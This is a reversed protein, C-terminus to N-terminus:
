KVNLLYVKKSLESAIVDRNINGQQKEAIEDYDIYYGDKNLRYVLNRNSEEKQRNFPELFNTLTSFYEPQLFLGVIHLEKNNHATSIEVGSISELVHPNTSNHRQAASIFEPIGSITNHDTLAVASLRLQAANEIIETPSATGDSFKSHTHLDCFDRM